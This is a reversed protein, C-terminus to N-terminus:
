LQFFGGGGTISTCIKRNGLGSSQSEFALLCTFKSVLDFCLDVTCMTSIGALKKIYSFEQSFAQVKAKMGKVYPLMALHTHSGSASPISTAGILRSTNM